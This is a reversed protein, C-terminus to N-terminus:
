FWTAILHLERVENLFETDGQDTKDGLIKVAVPKDNHRALIGMYVNGFGGRGLLIRAPGELDSARDTMDEVEKWTFNELLPQLISNRAQTERRTERHAEV